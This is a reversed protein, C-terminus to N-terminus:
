GGPNPFATEWSQLFEQIQKSTHLFAFRAVERGVEKLREQLAEDDLSGDENFIKWAKPIIVQQPVVWAHLTRGITRLSNLANVAGLEGGSVGILGLMKGGFQDFGMLDLANKIVGSMGGHYEPTGLIIGQARQVDSRLRQVGEPYPGDRGDLFTLEYDVLDIVQTEAGMEEAGQLAIELAMRTFSGRRLSGSIGIVQLPQDGPAQHSM